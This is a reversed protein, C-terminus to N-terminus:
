VMPIRVAGTNRNIIYNYMPEGAIIFQFFTVDNRNVYTYIFVAKVAIMSIRKHNAFRRIFCYFQYFYGLLRKIFSYFLSNYSVPKTIYRKSYLVIGLFLISVAHNSFQHSM